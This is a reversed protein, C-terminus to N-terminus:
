VDFYNTKKVFSKYNNFKILRGNFIYYIVDCTKILESNHSIIIITKKNNLKKILNLINKKSLFDLSNTPEDFILIESDKYLSRAIAIKQVQGGSINKGREALNYKVKNSIKNIFKNLKVLKIVEAIKSQDFKQNDFNL